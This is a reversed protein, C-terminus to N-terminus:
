RLKLNGAVTCCSLTAAAQSFPTNVMVNGFFSSTFGFCILTSTFYAENSVVVSLLGPVKGAKQAGAYRLFDHHHFRCKSTASKGKQAAIKMKIGSRAIRGASVCSPLLYGTAVIVLLRGSLDQIKWLVSTKNTFKAAKRSCLTNEPKIM